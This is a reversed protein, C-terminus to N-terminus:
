MGILHIVLILTCLQRTIAHSTIAMDIIANHLGVETLETKYKYFVMALQAECPRNRQPGM